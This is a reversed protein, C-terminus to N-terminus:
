ITVALSGAKSSIKSTRILKWGLFSFISGSFSSGKQVLDNKLEMNLSKPIYRSTYQLYKPEILPPTDLGLFGVHDDAQTVALRHIQNTGDVEEGGSGNHHHRPCSLGSPGPQPLVGAPCQKQLSIGTPCNMLMLHSTLITLKDIIIGKRKPSPKTVPRRSM